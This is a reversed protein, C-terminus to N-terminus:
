NQRTGQCPPLSSAPVDGLSVQADGGATVVISVTGSYGPPAKIRIPAVPIVGSPISEGTVLTAAESIRIISCPVLPQFVFIRSTTRNYVVATWDGYPTPKPTAQCAAALVTVVLLSLAKAVRV